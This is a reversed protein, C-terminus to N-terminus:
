ASGLAIRKLSKQFVGMQTVAKELNKKSNVIEKEIGRALKAASTLNKNSFKAISKAKEM